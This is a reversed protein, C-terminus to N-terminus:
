WWSSPLPIEGLTEITSTAMPNRGDMVLLVRLEFGEVGNQSAIDALTTLIECAEENYAPILIALVRLRTSSAAFQRPRSGSEPTLDDLRVIKVFSSEPEGGPSDDIHVTESSDNPDFCDYFRESLMLGILCFIVFLLTLVVKAVNVVEGADNSWITDFPLIGHLAYAAYYAAHCKPVGPAGCLLSDSCPADHWCHQGDPCDSATNCSLSCPASGAVRAGGFHESYASSADSPDAQSATTVCYATGAPDAEPCKYHSKAGCFNDGGCSVKRQCGTSYEPCDLFSSCPICM